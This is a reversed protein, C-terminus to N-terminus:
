CGADRESAADMLRRVVRVKGGPTREIAEVQSVHVTLDAGFRDGLHAIMSRRIRECDCEGAAVIAVDFERPGKQVVQYQRVEKEETFIVRIAQAHLRQGSPLLLHDDARGQVYSMLPLSRGCPCRGPRMSALDGLRYNLLVTGRNVLNSVVVQGSDGYPVDHGDADVLRLPYLDVNLHFGQHQECDFGIKFAEVAQYTGFLPIGFCEEILSRTADAIGDASYTVLRLGPITQGSSHLYHFLIDLYSGYSHIVHPRFSRIHRCNEEPPDLLSLYQRKVRLGAPFLAHQRCHRQVESATGLPSAIVTERYGYRKGLLRTYISREREGHAANQFLADTSHYVTCPAGTSGGSRIRLYREAPQATSLFREPDRQLDQREIVPLRALDAASRLDAPCLGLRDMTERYYPVYRYAYAVMTQVRRAQDGLITEMPQFSYRAQGRLHWALYASWYTRTLLSM